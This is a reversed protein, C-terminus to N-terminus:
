PRASQRKSTVRSGCFWGDHELLEAPIIFACKYVGLARHLLALGVLVWNLDRTQFHSLVKRIRVQLYLSRSVTDRISSLACGARGPRAAGGCVGAGAAGEWIAGTSAAAPGTEM